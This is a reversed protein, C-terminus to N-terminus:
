LTTGLRRALDALVAEVAPRYEALGGVSLTRLSVELEDLREKLRANQYSALETRLELAEALRNLAEGLRLSEAQIDSVEVREARLAAVASQLEAISKDDMRMATELRSLRREFDRALERQKEREKPLAAELSTLRAALEEAERGRVLKAELGTIRRNLVLTLDRELRQVEALRAQVAAAGYWDLIRKEAAERQRLRQETELSRKVAEAAEARLEEVRLRLASVAAPEPPEPPAPPEPGLGAAGFISGADRKLKKFFDGLTPGAPPEAM